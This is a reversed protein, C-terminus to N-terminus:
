KGKDLKQRLKDYVRTAQAESCGTRESYTALFSARNKHKALVMEYENVPQSESKPEKPILVQNYDVIIKFLELQLLNAAEEPLSYNSQLVAFLDASARVIFDSAKKSM